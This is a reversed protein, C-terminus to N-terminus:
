RASGDNLHIRRDVRWTHRLLGALREAEADTPAAGDALLHGVVPRPFEVALEHDTLVAASRDRSQGRRQRRLLAVAPSVTVWVLVPTVPRLRDALHQWAAPDTVERTFPAILVASRGAQVNEAALDTLCRYRAERITGRLSPHDLDDGAGTLAALQALLPNTATDLDLVCAGLRAAVSRGLTSKGSGPPGALCWVSSTVPATSSCGTSVPPVM